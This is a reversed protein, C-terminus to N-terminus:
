SWNEVINFAEILCSKSMMSNEFSQWVYCKWPNYYELNGLPFSENKSFVNYLGKHITEEVIIHKGVVKKYIKM